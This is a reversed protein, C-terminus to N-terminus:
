VNTHRCIPRFHAILTTTTCSVSEGQSARITVKMSYRNGNLTREMHSGDWYVKGCCECIYFQEVNKLVNPPVKDLQVTVRHRTACSAIDLTETTLRWTRNCNYFTERKEHILTSDQNSILNTDSDTATSAATVNDVDRFAGQHFKHGNRHRIKTFSKELEFITNRSVQVFEDYNCIQCRSFIDKPMVLVRFNNLVEKLQDEPKDELVRYCYGQGISPAFRNYASGRTLFVRKQQMAIKASQDGRRDFEVYICDCGCMRLQRALGGLMSDCVVRWEHAAQMGTWPEVKINETNKQDFKQVSSEATHISISSTGSGAKAAQKRLNKKPLKSPIHQTEACLENFAVDLRACQVRLVEFIELLCYADLAAYTLQSERLPRREWNSFQDSKNLRHGMCLEVLKSLSENTFASDGKYPFQFCHEKTLKRWLHLLDMYGQGTAKISALAPLSERIMGIDHALGFGLKLINKNDFLMIGIKAWLDTLEKGTSIVDLIYVTTKTAIQILALDSQKTGFSPKWESDIGVIKVEKLGKTLFEEFTRTDNVIKISGRPLHLTHYRIPDEEVDWNEEAAVEPNTNLDELEVEACDVLAWPWQDKPMKYDKAWRLAEKTDNAQALSKVLEFQLRSDTGVTERVMENWSEGRIKCDVYRKYILFKLAGEGRRQNLNPCYEPPLNYQKALRGVLKNMPRLQMTSIKVEPIQNRDVFAELATEINKGSALLDDLYTILAKQAEMCNVLLDDVLTLKNQLILPLLLVEPNLFYSQLHLICAYQAADKYRKETIMNQLAPLFLEKHEALKYTDFVIKTLQLNKQMTLLDFTASKIDAQLFDKYVDKRSSIWKSFDEAVTFSLSMKSKISKDSVNVLIRLVSLYPNPATSFYDTLMKTVGDSKKWLGWTCHLTNLWTKTADDISTYYSLDNEKEQLFPVDIQTGMDKGCRNFQQAM